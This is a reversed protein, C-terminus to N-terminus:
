SIKTGVWIMGNEIKTQFTEVPKKVVGDIAAGTKLDFKGYHWPCVVSCEDSDIKGECLPGRAHSCRNNIAYLEGKINFLGVMKGELYVTRTQGPELENAPCVEVWSERVERADLAEAIPPGGLADLAEELRVNVCTALPTDQLTYRSSETERLEQVLDLFDAPEDTEFAVIFEYDDIGFSYTTNLRISPYKKGVEIHEDMIGQRAHQSLLYWPRTKIFPYVFLYKAESPDIVLREEEESGDGGPGVRIEYVSRKTQSLYSATINLYGGMRTRLVATALEQFVLPSESIQWLMLESDARTGVTSYPRLLMRRNFTQIVNLLERKQEAQEEAPLRRWLPDLKYFAFRVYQRRQLQRGAPPASPTTSSKPRM